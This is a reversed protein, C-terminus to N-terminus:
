NQSVNAVTGQSGSAGAQGQSTGGVGGTGGSGGYFNNVTLYDPAGSAGYLYIGFAGGGAGGGGGGGHGGDGADGGRGGAGSCFIPSLVHGGPAGTGGQGGSGAPGGAGGAAGSGLYIECQEIAPATGGVVFIGFSGGGANGGGGGAGACGGGGGGGGHAGLIDNSGNVGDAGGGAGGGGGGAGDMGPGGSTGSSGVWEGGFVSGAGSAAGMGGVGDGGQVGASGDAGSRDNSTPVFCTGADLKSDWGGMGGMGGFSGMGNQGNAASSQSDFALPCSNGGGAGGHAGCPSSGGNSHSRSTSCFSSGTDFADYASDPTGSAGAGDGGSAGNPAPAGPSGAGGTAAFITTSRLAFSTSDKVYVAYSNAGAASAPEGQIVLGEVETPQTINQAVLTKKHTGPSAGRLITASAQPDREWTVPDYGGYLSIGDPLLVSETYVGNAALVKSRGLNQARQLGWSMTQCPYCSGCTGGPGLGCDGDDVAMPDDASVYVAQPDLYFECEDAPNGNLDFYGPDCSFFVLSELASIRDELDQRAHSGGGPYFEQRGAAADGVVEVGDINVELYYLLTNDLSLPTNEGLLLNFVGDNIAGNFDSGSDYVLSGGTAADYIRVAVNGSALPEGSADVARGQFSILQPTVVGATAASPLLVLPLLLVLLLVVGISPHFRSM